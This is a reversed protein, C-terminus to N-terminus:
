RSLEGIHPVWAEFTLFLLIVALLIALMVTVLDFKPLRFRSLKAPRQEDNSDTRMTM